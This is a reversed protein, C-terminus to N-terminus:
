IVIEDPHPRGGSGRREGLMWAQWNGPTGPMGGAIMPVAARVVLYLLAIGIGTLIATM